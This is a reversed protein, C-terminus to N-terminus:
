VLDGFLARSALDTISQSGELTGSGCTQLSRGIRFNTSEIGAYIGSSAAVEIDIVRHSPKLAAAEKPRIIHYPWFNAWDFIIAPKM